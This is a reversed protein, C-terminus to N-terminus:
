RAGNRENRWSTFRPLSVVLGNAKFVERLETHRWSTDALAALAAARDDESLSELWSDIITGRPPPLSPGAKLEDSLAVDVGEFFTGATRTQGKASKSQGRGARYERGRALRPM